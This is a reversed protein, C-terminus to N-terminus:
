WQEKETDNLFTWAIFRTTKNGQEMKIVQISTAGLKKLSVKMPRINEKKSVLSTFWYVQTKFLSSQYLYNHLFAKEGGKYCLENSTGSFNRKFEHPAGLGKLKRQTAKKADEQSNFFPPNCLTADFKDTPKIIGELISHAQHQHRLNIKNASNHEDIIQQANQLSKADIDTATFKWDYTKVGLLPYICTAGTGIDLLHKTKTKKPQLLTALHHIYDVRGPIPPCLNTNPFKWYSINYHTKLLATNLTKVAEPNSFDITQNQFKHTFVFPRLTPNENCLLSFDYGNKHKNNKHLPM